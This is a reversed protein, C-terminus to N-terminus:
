RIFGPAYRVLTSEVKGSYQAFWSQCKKLSFPRNMEESVSKMRYSCFLSFSSKNSFMFTFVYQLKTTPQLLGSEESVNWPMCCMTCTDTQQSHGNPCDSNLSPPHPPPFSPLPPLFHPLLPFHPPFLPSSPPPPPSSLSPPPPPPLFLLSSSPSHLHRSLASTLGKVGSSLFCM